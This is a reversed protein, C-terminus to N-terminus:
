DKEISIQLNAAAADTQKLERIHRKNKRIFTLTFKNKTKKTKKVDHLIQSRAIDSIIM